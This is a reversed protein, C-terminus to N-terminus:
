STSFRRRGNRIRGTMLPSRSRISAARARIISRRSIAPIQTDRADSLRRQRGCPAGGDARTEDVTVIEGEGVDTITETGKLTELLSRKAHTSTSIRAASEDRGLDRRRGHRASLARIRRGQQDRVARLENLFRSSMSFGFPTNRTPTKMIFLRITIPLAVTRRSASGAYSARSM